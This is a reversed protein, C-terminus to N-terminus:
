SKEWIHKIVAVAMAILAVAAFVHYGFEVIQVLLSSSPNM